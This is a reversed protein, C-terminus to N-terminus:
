PRGGSPPRIVRAYDGTAARDAHGSRQCSSGGARFAAASFGEHGLGAVVLAAIAGAVGVLDRAIM